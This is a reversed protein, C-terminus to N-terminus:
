VDLTIVRKGPEPTTSRVRQRGSPHWIKAQQERDLVKNALVGAASFHSAEPQRPDFDQTVQKGKGTATVRHKGNALTRAETRIIVAM